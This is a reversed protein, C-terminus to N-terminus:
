SRVVAGRDRNARDVDLGAISEYEAELTKSKEIGSQRQQAFVAIFVCAGSLAALRNCGDDPLRSVAACVLPWTSLASDCGDFKRSAPSEPRRRSRRLSWEVSFVSVGFM